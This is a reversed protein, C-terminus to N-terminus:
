QPDLSANFWIYRGGDHDCDWRTQDRNSSKWNEPIRGRCDMFRNGSEYLDSGAVDITSALVKSGYGM